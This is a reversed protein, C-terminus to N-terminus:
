ADHYAGMCEYARHCVTDEPRENEDQKHGEDVIASYLNGAHGFVDHCEALDGQEGENGDIGDRFHLIM